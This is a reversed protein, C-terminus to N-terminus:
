RLEESTRAPDAETGRRPTDSRRAQRVRRRLPAAWARDREYGAEILAKGAVLNFVAGEVFNLHTRWDGVRGGRKFAAEDPRYRTEFDTAKHIRALLEDDYPIGCFDYMTKYSGFPDARIEEYRVELFRDGLSPAVRSMHRIAQKWRHAHVPLLSNRNAWQRAWSRRAARVSVYVDRGDRLVHVFRAAPFVEGIVPVMWLHGPTKEVLFRHHPKLRRGLIRGAFLELERAMDERTLLQAMSNQDSGWYKTGLLAAVGQPTDFLGSEFVGAVLPHSRLIKHVWSTGSRALGVVFIPGQSLQDLPSAGSPLM